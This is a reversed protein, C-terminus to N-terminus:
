CKWIFANFNFVKLKIPDNIDKQQKKKDKKPM